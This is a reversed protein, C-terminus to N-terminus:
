RNLLRAKGGSVGDGGGDDLGADSQVRRGAGCGKRHEVHLVRLERGHHRTSEANAALQWHQQTGAGRGTRRYSRPWGSASRDSPILTFRRAGTCVRANELSCRAGSQEPASRDSSAGGHAHRQNIGSGAQDITTSRVQAGASQVTTSENAALGYVTTAM